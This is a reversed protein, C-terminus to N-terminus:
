SSSEVDKPFSKNLKRLFYFGIAGGLFNAIFGAWYIGQYSYLEGLILALPIHIIFIRLINLLLSTKSRGIANHTSVTNQLIALGMISFIMIKLYTGAVKVITPDDNFIAAVNDAFFIMMVSCIFIWATSYKNALSLAKTIRSYKRAGYNQGVFPSLSAAIGILVIAFLSEVKTGVGFGAVVNEGHKAVLKTLVFMAIPNILNNLFAPIAVQSIRIWNGIVKNFGRFPNVLVKYKYHLFYMAALFTFFRAIATAIAAGKLGLAPFPGIGFILLPDFIFNVVGAVTMVIAPFKTNGMARIISNGTMPVVILPISAYWIMMYEKILPILDESAGMFLFLPRITLEGIILLIIGLIVVMSLSDTAFNAVQDARGSGLAMSVFSTAAIGIGFAVSGVILPIPFTFAIAALERTGLKGIFYTDVINFIIISFVGLIMPIALDILQKSIDGQTLRAKM